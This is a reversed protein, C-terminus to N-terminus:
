EPGGTSPLEHAPCLRRAPPSGPGAAEVMVLIGARLAEPLGSWREVVRALDPPLEAAARPLHAAPPAITARLDKTLLSNRSRPATKAVAGGLTMVGSGDRLAAAQEFARDSLAPNGSAMAPFEVPTHPWDPLSRGVAMM